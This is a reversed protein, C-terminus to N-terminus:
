AVFKQKKRMWINTTGWAPVIDANMWGSSEAEKYQLMLDAIIKKYDPKPCIGPNTDFSIIARCRELEIKPLFAALFASNDMHPAEVAEMHCNFCLSAYFDPESYTRWDGHWKGFFVHHQHVALRGCM